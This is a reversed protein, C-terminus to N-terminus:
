ALLIELEPWDVSSQAAFARILLERRKSHDGSRFKSLAEELVGADPCPPSTAELVGNDHSIGLLDLWECLLDGHRDLFYQALVEEAVPNMSSRALTQRVWEAQRAKPQRRLFDSRLKFAAATAQLAVQATSPAERKLEELFELADSSGMASFIQHSKMRRVITSGSWNALGLPELADEGENPDPSPM